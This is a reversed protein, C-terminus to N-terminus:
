KKLKFVKMTESAILNWDFKNLDYDKLAYPKSLQIELQQLLEESYYPNYLAARDQVLAVNAPIDSALIDLRYSMAELLSIPMGEHFSPLVFLRAHTFLETLLEGKVFGPLIVNNKYAMKKLELSYASEHDADGAIVLKFDFKCTLKAYAEILIHFGKEEVFRGLTFIYKQKEVGLRKIYFDDEILTPQEVGNHILHVNSTKNYKRCLDEKIKESIVIIQNASLVAAREGLRLIWKALKGWKNREYDAGHHTVVVKLGLLRAFPSFLAPGIGHIHVVNAGVVRAYCIALFTHFIAELSKQRPAYIGKLKVGKYITNQNDTTVYCSRRVVTVDAGLAVLRPYLMECHTEVGGQIDPIGRTGTVVIKM